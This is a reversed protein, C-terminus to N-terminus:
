TMRENEVSIDCNKPDFDLNQPIEQKDPDNWKQCTLGLWQVTITM